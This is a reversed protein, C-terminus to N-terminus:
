HTETFRQYYLYLMAVISDHEGTIDVMTALVNAAFAAAFCDIFFFQYLKM